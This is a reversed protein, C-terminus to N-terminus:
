ECRLRDAGGAMMSTTLAGYTIPLGWRPDTHDHDFHLVVHGVEHPIPAADVCSGLSTTVRIEMTSPDACGLALGAGCRVLGDELVLVWGDLVGLGAGWWRAAGYAVEEARVLAADDAWVQQSRSTVHFPEVGCGLM